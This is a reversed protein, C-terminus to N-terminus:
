LENPLLARLHRNGTLTAIDATPAQSVDVRFHVESVEPPVGDRIAPIAGLEYVKFSSRGQEEDFRMSLATSASDGLAAAVGEQLKLVLDADGGLQEEIRGLLELVSLGGGSTEVFTSVLIGLTGKPLVCQELSFFHTRRRSSSAKIEVRVNGTSFDYRDDVNSRWARVATSPSSSCSIVLLEAFLGIVSRRSPRILQRFLDVLRGVGGAVDDLTPEQGLIAVITECVYAFYSQLIPDDSMCVVTTFTQDWGSGNPLALRCRVCFRVQVVALILPAKPFEDTATLLLCPAGRSDRGFFHEPADPIRHVRYEGTGTRVHDPPITELIELLSRM